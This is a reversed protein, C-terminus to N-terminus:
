EHHSSYPIRSTRNLHAKLSIIILTLDSGLLLVYKLLTSKGAGLFGCIVTLPVRVSSGVTLQPTGHEILTRFDYMVEQVARYTM